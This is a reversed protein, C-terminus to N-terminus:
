DAYMNTSARCNRRRNFSIEAKVDSVPEDWTECCAAKVIWAKNCHESKLVMAVKKWRGYGSTESTNYGTHLADCADPWRDNVPSPLSKRCTCVREQETSVSDKKTKKSVTADMHVSHIGAGSCWQSTVYVLRNDEEEYDWTKYNDANLTEEQNTTTESRKKGIVAELDRATALGHTRQLLLMDQKQICFDGGGEAVSGAAVEVAQQNKTATFSGRVPAIDGAVVEVCIPDNGEEAIANLVRQGQSLRLGMSQQMLSISDDAAVISMTTCFLSASVM